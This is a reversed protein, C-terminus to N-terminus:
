AYVRTFIDIFVWYYPLARALESKVVFTSTKRVNHILRHMLPHFIHMHTRICFLAPQYNYMHMHSVAGCVQTTQRQVFGNAFLGVRAVEYDVAVANTLGAGQSHGSYVM